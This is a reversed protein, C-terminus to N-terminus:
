PAGCRGSRRRRLRVAPPQPRAMVARRGHACPDIRRRRDAGLAEAPVQGVLERGNKGAVKGASAIMCYFPGHCSPQRLMGACLLISWRCNLVCSVSSSWGSGPVSPSVLHFGSVCHPPVAAASFSRIPLSFSRNLFLSLYDVILSSVLAALSLADTVTSVPRAVVSRPDTVYQLVISSASLSTWRRFDAEAASPNTVRNSSDGYPPYRTYLM